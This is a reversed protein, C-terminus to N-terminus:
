FLGQRICNDFSNDCNKKKFKLLTYEAQSYFSSFSVVKLLQWNRNVISIYTSHIEM